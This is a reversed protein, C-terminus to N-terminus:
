KQLLTFRHAVSYEDKFNGVYGSVKGVQSKKIILYWGVMGVGVLSLFTM